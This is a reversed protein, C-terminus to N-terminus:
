SVAVLEPEPEAKAKQKPKPEAKAEAMAKAVEQERIQIIAQELNTKDRNVIPEGAQRAQEIQAKYGDPNDTIVENAYTQLSATFNERVLRINDSLNKVVKTVPRGTKSFKVSGDPSYALRLPAGLADSAIVTEGMLNTAHFFPLWVTELDISWVRRGAPRKGNPMLLSKVYQPSEMRHGGKMIIPVCSM